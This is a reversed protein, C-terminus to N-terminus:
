AHYVIVLSKETSYTLAGSYPSLHIYTRHGPLKLTKQPAEEEGDLLVPPLVVTKGSNVHRGVIHGSFSVGIPLTNSATRTCLLRLWYVRSGRVFFDYGVLAATRNSLHLWVRYRGRATPNEYVWLSTRTTAVPNGSQGNMVFTESVSTSLSSAMIHTSPPNVGDVHEWSTLAALPSVGLKHGGRPGLLTLVLHGPVLAIRPYHPNDTSIVLSSSTRWNILLVKRANFFEVAIIDGCITCGTYPDDLSDPGRTVLVLSSRGSALDLTHVEIFNKRPFPKTRQCMVVLLQEATDTQFEAAFDLMVGSPSSTHTWVLRDEFVSWCGLHLGNQFLVYRGGPLLRAENEHGDIEPFPALHPHLTTQRSIMPVASFLKSPKRLFNKLRSGSQRGFNDRTGSTGTDQWSKPGYLLRRLRAVPENINVDDPRTDIFHRERMKTVLSIWVHHTLHFLYKNTESLAILTPFEQNAVIIELILIIVDEALDLFRLSPRTTPSM